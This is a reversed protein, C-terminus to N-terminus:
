LSSSPTLDPHLESLRPRLRSKYVALNDKASKGKRIEKQTEFPLAAIEQCKANCCGSFKEACHSCQIFLLHCADNKCNTHTDAPKDCQHCKSIIDSTIKEGFREDFVFNKGKYKSEIQKEQCEHAYQIIGGHLQNVDKFGKHKFYASAKECRIGGTCYFLIKQDKKGELVKEVLPLEERFTDSDPCIAGEFHGVESEYHNRMDVVIAGDEIAKNFEEASLHTGVNTVDFESDNLGDALIKDRVKITLKFFSKGDDEVAIKFPVESFYTGEDLYQRLKQLNATPISFQANIGENALYIRGLMGLTSWDKFLQDRLSDPDSINVYRYFSITTRPTKDESLRARLEKRNILNKLITM